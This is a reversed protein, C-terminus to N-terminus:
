SYSISNNKGAFQLVQVGCPPLLIEFRPFPFEREEGSLLDRCPIPGETGFLPSLDAVLRQPSFTDFNCVVLFGAAGTGPAQTKPDQRFAAIV